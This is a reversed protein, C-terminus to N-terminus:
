ASGDFIPCGGHTCWGHYFMGYAVAPHDLTQIQPAWKIVQVRDRMRELWGEPFGDNDCPVAPAREIFDDGAHMPRYSRPQDDREKMAWIIPSGVMDFALALVVQDACCFQGQTGLTVYVVSRHQQQDMWKMLSCAKHEDDGRDLPPLYGILCTKPIFQHLSEIYDSSYTEEEDHTLMGDLYKAQEVM